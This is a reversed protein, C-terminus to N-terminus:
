KSGDSKGHHHHAPPPMQAPDRPRMEAEEFAERLLRNLEDQDHTLNRAVRRMKLSLRHYGWVSRRKAEEWGERQFYFPLNVQFYSISDADQLLDAEPDGGVEHLTVLRAAEEAISPAVGSAALIELLIAAGNRAHAAKFADYNQFDARLVKREKVARDIDHGLAALQLAPGAHPELKLVWRLTDKAHPFDEPVESGAVVELIRQKARVISDISDM